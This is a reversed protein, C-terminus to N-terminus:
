LEPVTKIEKKKKFFFLLNWRKYSTYVVAQFYKHYCPQFYSFGYCIQIIDANSFFLFARKLNQFVLFAIYVATLCKVSSALSMVTRERFWIRFNFTTMNSKFLMTKCSEVGFTKVYTFTFDCFFVWYRCKFTCGITFGRPM